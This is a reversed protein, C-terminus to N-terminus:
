DEPWMDLMKEIAPDPAKPKPEAKPKRSPKGPPPPPSASPVSTVRPPEPKVVDYEGGIEAVFGEGCKACKMKRGLLSEDIKGEAGCEPCEIYIIPM